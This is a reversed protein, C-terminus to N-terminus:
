QDAIRALQNLTYAIIEDYDMAAGSRPRERLCRSGRPHAHHDRGVRQLAKISTKPQQSQCTPRLPPAATHRHCIQVYLVYM